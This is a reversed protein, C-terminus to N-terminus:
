AVQGLGCFSLCSPNLDPDMLSLLGPKWCWSTGNYGSGAEVRGRGGNGAKVQLRQGLQKSGGSFYLDGCRDWAKDKLPELKWRCGSM